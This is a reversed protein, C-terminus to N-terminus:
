LGKGTGESGATCAVIDEREIFFIGDGGQEFELWTFPWGPYRQQLAEASNGVECVLAGGANLYDPSQALIKGVIDLGDEGAALGLEPEHSFEAPMSQMDQRDVYPPNTLVLDYTNNVAAFLDGQYLSVRDQLNHHLINEGALQLADGSIDCADVQAQPFASAAALAICGSGTCLDLVRRVDISDVLGFCNHQLFEAFPSRPILVREDVKIELGAFWMRGAIYAAPEREIARRQLWSETKALVPETLVQLLQGAQLPVLPSIGAAELVLWRADDLAQTTGHGYGLDHADLYDTAARIATDIDPPPSRPIIM